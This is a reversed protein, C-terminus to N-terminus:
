AREHDAGEEPVQPLIKRSVDISLGLAGLVAATGAAEMWGFQPGSEIGPAILWWRDFWLGVLLLVAVSGLFFRNKKAWETLLLVLPGLYVIAALVSSIVMWGPRNMRQALYFTEDLINSYWITLLQMFLFYTTLISFALILKGLDHRIEAHYRSDFVVLLALFVIAIYLSSIFFYAGFIASHWQSNLGLVLDFSLLTFVVCFIVILIAGPLISRERGKLRRLLFWIASGWFALLAAFDRAFLFTNNMWIGQPLTKGYWPAWVPSGIWLAILIIFSPVLFAIGTWALREAQGAWRGKSAIIVASWTVLGAALPTFFMFNILMARWARAKDAGTLLLMLWALLGAGLLIIWSAM